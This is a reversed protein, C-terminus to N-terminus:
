LCLWGAREPLLLGGGGGGGGGREREREIAVLLSHSCVRNVIRVVLDICLLDSLANEMRIHAAEPM